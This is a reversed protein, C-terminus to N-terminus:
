GGLNMIEVRRNEPAGPNKPDLPEKSGRGVTVLRDPSVQGTKVLYDKVAQARRASLELNRSASGVNDTHGAIRFKASSASLVSAIHDLLQTSDSTLDASGFEFNIKFDAKFVHHTPAPAPAPNHTVTTAVHSPAAPHSAVAPPSATSPSAAPPTYTAPAPESSPPPESPMQDINGIAIGRTHPCGPKTVGLSAAIKCESASPGLVQGDEALAPRLGFGALAVGAACALLFTKAIRM